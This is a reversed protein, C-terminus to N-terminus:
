TLACPVLRDAIDAYIDKLNKGLEDLTTGQTMYDPYDELYGLWADGDKWYIYRISNM